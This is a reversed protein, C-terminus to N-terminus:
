LSWSFLTARHMIVRVALTDSLRAVNSREGWRVVRDLHDGTLRDCDDFSYGGIPPIQPDTMTGVVPILEVKIWGGTETRYNLRLQRPAENPDLLPPFVGHPPAEIADPCNEPPREREQRLTFQGRDRARIGALRDRQWVAYRVTRPAREGPEPPYWDIDNNHLRGNGVYALGWRDDGM